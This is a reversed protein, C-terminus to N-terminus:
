ADHSEEQSIAEADYKIQRIIDICKYMDDANDLARIHNTIGQILSDPACESIIRELSFTKIVYDGDFNGVLALEPMGYDNEILEFYYRDKDQDQYYKLFTKGDLAKSM